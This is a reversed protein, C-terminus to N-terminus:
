NSNFHRALVSRINDKGRIIDGHCPILTHAEWENLLIKVVETYYKKDNIMLNKYFPLYIKDMGFKWLRTGFPISDVTPALGNDGNDGELHSNPVGDKQPYNWYVDTTLVSKSPVHYFIVENFFPKGTFPNIEMNLHLPVIVDFDWCNKRQKSESPRILGFPIEGEWKIDPLKDVLGPCGWMFADPYEQSWQKAYKLHEYNPSVIYKVTGLKKLAEKTELDLNVPSHVWLDGGELQIVCMRGGVDIKNWYFPRDGTYVGKATPTLVTGLRNSWTSECYGGVENGNALNLDINKADQFLSATGSSEAGNYNAETAMSRATQIRASVTSLQQPTSSPVQDISFSLAGLPLLFAISYLMIHLYPDKGIRSGFM